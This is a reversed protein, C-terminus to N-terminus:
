QHTSWCSRRDASAVSRCLVRRVKTLSGAVDEKSLAAAPAAPTLTLLAASIAVSSAAAFAADAPARREWSRSTAKPPAAPPPALTASVSVPVPAMPPHHSRCSQEAPRGQLRRRDVWGRQSKPWLRARARSGAEGQLALSEPFTRLNEAVRIPQTAALVVLHHSGYSIAWRTMEHDGPVVYVVLLVEQVVGDHTYISAVSGTEDQVMASQSLNLGILSKIM